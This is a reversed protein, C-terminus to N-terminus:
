DSLELSKVLDVAQELGDLGGCAIDYIREAYEPDIKHPVAFFDNADILKHMIVFFDPSIQSASDRVLKLFRPGAEYTRYEPSQPDLALISHRAYYVMTVYPGDESFEKVAILMDKLESDKSDFLDLGISMEMNFMLGIVSRRDMNSITMDYMELIFQVTEKDLPSQAADLARLISDRSLPKEGLTTTTWLISLSRVVRAYDNISVGPPLFSYSSAPQELMERIVQRIKTHTRRM